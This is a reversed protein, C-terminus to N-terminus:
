KFSLSLSYAYLGLWIGVFYFNTWWRNNSYVDEKIKHYVIENYFKRYYMEMINTPLWLCFKIDPRDLLGLQICHLIQRDVDVYSLNWHLIGIQISFLEKRKLKREESVIPIIEGSM